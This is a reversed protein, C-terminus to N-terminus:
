GTVNLVSSESNGIVSYKQVIFVSLIIKWKMVAACLIAGRVCRFLTAPAELM